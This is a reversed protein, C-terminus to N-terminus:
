GKPQILRYTAIDTQQRSTHQAMPHMGQSDGFWGPGQYCTYLIITGGGNVLSGRNWPIHEGAAAIM